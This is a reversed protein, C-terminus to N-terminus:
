HCHIPQTDNLWVLFVAVRSFLVIPSVFFSWCPQRWESVQVSSILSSLCHVVEKIDFWTSMRHKKMQLTKAAACCISAFCVKCLVFSLYNASGILKRCFNRGLSVQKSFSSECKGSLLLSFTKSTSQFWHMVLGRWSRCFCVFKSVSFM